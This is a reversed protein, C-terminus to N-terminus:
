GGQAWPFFGRPSHGQARMAADVQGLHYAHHALVSWLFDMGTLPAGVFRYRKLAFTAPLSRFSKMISPLAEAYAALIAPGHVALVDNGPPGPIADDTDISTLTRSWFREAVLLHKVDSGVPGSWTEDPLDAVLQISHRVKAGYLAIFRDHEERSM